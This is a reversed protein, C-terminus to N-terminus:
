VHARGIQRAMARDPEGDASVELLLYAGDASKSRIAHLSAFHPGEGSLDDLRGLTPKYAPSGVEAQLADIAAEAREVRALNLPCVITLLQQNM